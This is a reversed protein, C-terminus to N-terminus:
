STIVHLPKVHAATLPPVLIPWDRKAPSEIGACVILSYTSYHVLDAEQWGPSGFCVCDCSNPFHSAMMITMDSMHPKGYELGALSPDASFIEDVILKTELASVACPVRGADLILVSNNSRMRAPSYGHNIVDSDVMLGGGVVSFALWRLYCAMEYEQSNVTPLSQCHSLFSEYLPHIEADARGLIKPTWGNRSWSDAWFDLLSRLDSGMEEHYTYVTNQM